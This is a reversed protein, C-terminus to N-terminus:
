SEKMFGQRLVTINAVLGRGIGERAYNNRSVCSAALMGKKKGTATIVLPNYPIIINKGSYGMKM